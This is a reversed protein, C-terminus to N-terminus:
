GVCLCVRSIADGLTLRTPSPWVLVFEGFVYTFFSLLVVYYLFLWMFRVICLSAFLITDCLSLWTPSFLFACTLCLVFFGLQTLDRLLLFM